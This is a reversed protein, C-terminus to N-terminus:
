RAESIDQTLQDYLLNGRQIKLVLPIPLAAIKGMISQVYKLDHRLLGNPACGMIRYDPARTYYNGFKSGSRRLPTLARSRDSSPTDFRFSDEVFKQVRYTYFKGDM